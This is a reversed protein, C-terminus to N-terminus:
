PVDMREVWVVECAGNGTDQRTLSSNWHWGDAAQISVLVGSFQVLSGKRVRKLASAVDDNAPIMHMNASHSSIVAPPLALTDTWWNYFRGGQSIDIEDLVAENSMPGWGLALDFPSLESERGLWYREKSLVRAEVDFSALPKISYGKWEFPQPNSIPSQKPDDPALVGPGHRIESSTGQYALGLAAAVLIWLGKSRM